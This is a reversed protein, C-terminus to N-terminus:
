DLTHKTALEALLSRLGAETPDVTKHETATLTVSDVNVVRTPSGTFGCQTVDADIQSAGWEPILLGRADASKVAQQWEANESWDNPTMMGMSRGIETPTKAKKFQMLRKVRPPRPDNASDVVTILAPLPCKVKEDGGEIERCVTIATPSLELSEVYTIQPINLRGAVQPGVQATDGDIAQRGCLIIDYHGCKDIAKALTYSTAFTDAVAFARDTVLAVEDAGRYLAERLVQAAPPPGMTLVTVRGGYSDRISLAMELANLDEPNFIAPLASRNVTGDEKMAKGTIRKTDPVQKVLVICDFPM